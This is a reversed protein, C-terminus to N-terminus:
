RSSTLPVANKAADTEVSPNPQKVGTRLAEDPPTKFGTLGHEPHTTLQIDLWSGDSAFRGRVIKDERYSRINELLLEMVAIATNIGLKLRPVLWDLPIRSQIVNDINVGEGRRINFSDPSLIYDSHYFANRVPRVYMRDFLNGIDPFCRENALAM